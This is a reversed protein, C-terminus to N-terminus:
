QLQDRRGAKLCGRAVDPDHGGRPNPNKRSLLQKMLEHKAMENCETNLRDWSQIAGFGWGVVKASTRRHLSSIFLRYYVASCNKLYGLLHRWFKTTTMTRLVGTPDAEVYENMKEASAEM